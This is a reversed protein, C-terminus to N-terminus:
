VLRLRHWDPLFFFAAPNAAKFNTLFLNSFARKPIM